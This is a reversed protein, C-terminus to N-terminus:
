ITILTSAIDECVQMNKYNAAIYNCLGIINTIAYSQCMGSERQYVVCLGRYIRANSHEPMICGSLYKLCGGMILSENLIDIIQEDRYNTLILEATAITHISYISNAYIRALIQQIQVAIDAMIIDLPAAFIPWYQDITRERLAAARDHRSQMFTYNPPNPKLYKHVIQPRIFFPSAIINQEKNQVLM